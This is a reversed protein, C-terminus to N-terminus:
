DPTNVAPESAADMLLIGRDVLRPIKIYDGDTDMLDVRYIKNAELDNSSSDKASDSIDYFMQNAVTSLKAQINKTHYNGMEVLAENILSMIYTDPVDPFVLKIRSIIQKATLSHEAM